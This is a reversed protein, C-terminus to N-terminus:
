TDIFDNVFMRSAAYFIFYDRLVRHEEMLSDFAYGEKLTVRFCFPFRAVLSQSTARGRGMGRLPFFLGM